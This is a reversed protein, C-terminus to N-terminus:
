RKWAVHWFSTYELPLRCDAIRVALATLRRESSGRAYGSFQVRAPLRFGLKEGDCRSIYVEGRCFQSSDPEDNGSEGKWDHYPEQAKAVAAEWMSKAKEPTLNPQAIDANPDLHRVFDDDTIRAM